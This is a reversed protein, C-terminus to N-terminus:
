RSLAVAWATAQRYDECAGLHDGVALRQPGSTILEAIQQLQHEQGPNPPQVAAIADAQAQVTIAEAVLALLDKWGTPDGAGHEEAAIVHGIAARLKVNGALEDRASPLASLVAPDVTTTLRADIADIVGEPTLVELALTHTVSGGDDDTLTVLVDYSGPTSYVHAHRLLGLAGFRADSYADFTTDTTGDGWDVTATQTDDFGPDTLTVAVIVPLGPLLSRCTAASPTGSPTACSPARCSPPVHARRRQGQAPRQRRARNPRDPTPDTPHEVRVRVTRTAPGAVHAADFSAAGATDFDGDNDLDWTVAWRRPTTPTATEGFTISEVDDDLGLRDLDTEVVVAGGLFEDSSTPHDDAFITCGVLRFWRWVGQRPLGRGSM